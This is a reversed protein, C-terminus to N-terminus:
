GLVAGIDIELNGQDLRDRERVSGEIEHGTAEHEVVQRIIHLYLAFPKRSIRRTRFGPLRKM